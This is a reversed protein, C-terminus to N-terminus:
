VIFKIDTYIHTNSMDQKNHIKICDEKGYYWLLNKWMPHKELLYYNGTVLSCTTLVLTAIHILSLRM